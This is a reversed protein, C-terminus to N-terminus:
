SAQIKDDINSHVTKVVDSPTDEKSDVATGDSVLIAYRELVAM